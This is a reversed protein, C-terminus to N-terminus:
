CKYLVYFYEIHYINLFSFRDFIDLEIRLHMIHELIMNYKAQNKWGSEDIIGISHM